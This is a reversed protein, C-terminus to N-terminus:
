HQHFVVSQGKKLSWCSLCKACDGECPISLPPITPNLEEKKFFVYAVPFNYPNDVKFGKFWASYVIHLNTPIKGGSALYDNAITFKKTFCLFKVHKCKKAVKIM